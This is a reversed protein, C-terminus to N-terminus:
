VPMSEAMWAAALASSPLPRRLGLHHDQYGIAPRVATIPMVVVVVIPGASLGSKLRRAIRCAAADDDNGDAKPVIGVAGQHRLDCSM